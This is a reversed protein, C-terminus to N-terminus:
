EGCVQRLNSQSSDDFDPEDYSQLMDYTQAIWFPGGGAVKMSGCYSIMAENGDPAIINKIAGLEVGNRLVRDRRKYVGSVGPVPVQEGSVVSPNPKSTLDHLAM